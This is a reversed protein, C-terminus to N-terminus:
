QRLFPEDAVVFCSFHNRAHTTSLRIIEGIRVLIVRALVGSLKRIIQREVKKIKRQRYIKRHRVCLALNLKYRASIGRPASLVACSERTIAFLISRRCMFTKRRGYERDFRIALKELM